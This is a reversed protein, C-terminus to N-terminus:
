IQALPIKKEKKQFIYTKFKFPSKNFFGVAEPHVSVLTVLASNISLIYAQTMLPGVAYPYIGKLQLSAFKM